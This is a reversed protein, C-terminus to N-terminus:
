GCRQTHKYQLRGTKCHIQRLRNTKRKCHYQWLQLLPRKDGMFEFVGKTVTVPLHQKDFSVKNVDSVTRKFTSKPYKNSEIYNENFHEEMWHKPFIFGKLPSFQLEGTQANM